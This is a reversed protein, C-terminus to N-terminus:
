NQNRVIKLFAFLEVGEIIFSMSLVVASLNILYFLGSM